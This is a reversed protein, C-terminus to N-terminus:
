CRFLLTPYRPRNRAPNEREREASSSFNPFQTLRTSFSQLSFLPALTKCTLLSSPAGSPPHCVTASAVDRARCLQAAQLQVTRCVKAYKMERTTM